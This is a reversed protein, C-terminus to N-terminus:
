KYLLIFFRFHVGTIFQKEKLKHSRMLFTKRKDRAVIQKRVAIFAFFPIGDKCPTDLRYIMHLSQQWFCTQLRAVAWITGFDEGKANPFLFLTSFSPITSTIYSLVDGPFPHHYPSSRETAKKGPPNLFFPFWVLIFDPPFTDKKIQCVNTTITFFLLGLFFTFIVSTVEIIQHGSRKNYTGGFFLRHRALLSLFQSSQLSRSM